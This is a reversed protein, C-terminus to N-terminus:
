KAAPAAPVAAAAPAAAALPAPPPEILELDLQIKVEESVALGGTELVKNWGLGFDKRNITTTASAGRVTAGGPNKITDTPGEVDLVVEKTVGHITLDGTVKLAGPAGAVSKSKFTLTPFKEVDFFDASRLHEDRKDNSTDISAADITVDVTSAAVNAPDYGVTGEFKTFGGRVTSVMMHKVAFGVNSHATDIKYTAATAASAASALLVLSLVAPTRLVPLM